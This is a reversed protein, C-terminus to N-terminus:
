ALKVYGDRPSYIEGNSRLQEIVKDVFDEEVNNAKALEKVLKVAVIDVSGKRSEEKIIDIVTQMKSRSAKTTGSLLFDIDVKGTVPDKGVQELSSRLLNIAAEVHDITVEDKLAMRAQAESLRIIAELYRPTIAIATSADSDKRLDLYYAEIREMAEDTLAPEVQQKAYSIYKRLLDMSIVPEAAETIHGRRLELIHRAMKKDKEVDPEDKIVFILDFRSLITPPLNINENPPRSDEYRGFRPNAAAIIATRANLTAVIGAKAISITNHLVLGHSIFNETPEVTVDYVWDTKFEGANEVKVINVVSLKNLRLLSTSRNDDEVGPVISDIKLKEANVVKIEDDNYIYIPHNPTVVIDIGNSYTIKYFYEPAKHRSVRNLHTDFIEKFNTTLIKYNLGETSLIECDKGEIQLDSHKQFLNDVFIGIKEKKANILSFEFNPHYSHQEMAEHISSRDVPNMKDFEDILCNHVPIFNAFYTEDEAVQINYVTQAEIKKKKTLKIFHVNESLIKQLLNFETSSKVENFKSLHQLANALIKKNLGISKLQSKRISNNYLIHKNGHPVQDSLAYIMKDIKYIKDSKDQRKIIKQHNDKKYTLLKTPDFKQINSVGTISIKYSFFIGKSVVGRGLQTTKKTRAIIGIKRFLKKYFEATEKNGCVIDIIGGFKRNSVAGDGNIVGSLFSQIVKSSSNLIEPIVCPSKSKNVNLIGLKVLYQHIEKDNFYLRKVDNRKDLHEKVQRDFVSKVLYQFRELLEDSKSYFTIRYKEKSLNGDSAILGLLEALDESIIKEEEEGKETELFPYNRYDIIIENVELDEAKKWVLGNDWVPLPHEKSAKLVEGTSFELKYIDKSDRKSKAVIENNSIRFTESNFSIVKENIDEDVIEKISLLKGSSMLIEADGTLCVGRDALVLAGAELTFEGSEPDRVVAATLGAASSAKGSTLLGRPALRSIYQLMQSNHVFVGNAIFNHTEPVQLDYVWKFDPVETSIEEIKDWYIDSSALDELRKIDETIGHKMLESIIKNLSIRSPNRDGREYHQYTSRSLGMQKQSLKLKKRIHLL